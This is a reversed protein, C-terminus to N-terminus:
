VPAIERRPWIALTMITALAGLGILVNQVRELHLNRDNEQSDKPTALTPAAMVGLWCVLTVLLCFASIGKRRRHSLESMSFQKRRSNLGEVETHQSAPANM